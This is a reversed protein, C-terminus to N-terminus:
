PISVALLEDWHPEAVHTASLLALGVGAAGDLLGPDGWWGDVGAGRGRLSGYGGIGRGVRRQDLLIRFWHVAAHRLVEDGTAQYMRNFLHAAGATGHCLGTSVLHMDADSRTAAAHALSLARAEWDERGRLRAAALLAAAAGLDGYCWATRALGASLDYGAFPPITTRGHGDTVTDLLADIAPALLSDALAIGATAMRALVSIIGAAGHAVGLDTRGSPHLRRTDPDLHAPPTRWTIGADMPHSLEALLAAIRTLLLPGAPGPPRQLACLAYGAVGYLLEPSFVGEPDDLITALARDVDAMPDDDVLAGDIWRGLHAVAWAIGTIGDSFSLGSDM